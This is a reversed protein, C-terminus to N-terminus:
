FACPIKPPGATVFFRDLFRLTGESVRSHRFNSKITGAKTTANPDGGSKLLIKLYRSDANPHDIGGGGLQAAKMLASEGDTKDQKNPDAGLEVLKKVSNYKRRYIAIKLITQGYTNDEYDILRRNKKVIKEISSTDEKEVAQALGWAPTKEFLRYDSSLLKARQTSTDKHVCGSLLLLISFVKIM